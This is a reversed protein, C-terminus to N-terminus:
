SSDNKSREEKEKRPTKLKEPRLTRPKQCLDSSAAYHIRGYGM